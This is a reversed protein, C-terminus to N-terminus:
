LSNRHRSTGDSKGTRLFRWLGLTECPTEAEAFAAGEVDGVRVNVLPFMSPSPSLFGTTAISPVIALSIGSNLSVPSPTLALSPLWDISDSFLHDIMATRDVVSPPLQTVAESMLANANNSLPITTEGAAIPRTVALELSNDIAVLLMDSSQVIPDSNRADLVAIGSDAVVAFGTDGVSIQAAHSQAPTTPDDLGSIDSNILPVIQKADALTITGQGLVDMRYNYGADGASLNIFPVIQKADALTVTQQNLQDGPLVYMMFNFDSGQAGDGSGAASSSITNQWYGDLTAGDIDTVSSADIHLLVRDAPLLPTSFTWTAVHTTNNYSFGSVSPLTPAGPTSSGILQLSSQTVSVDESFLINVTNLKLWPLTDLQHAGNSINYGLGTVTNNGYGSTDLYDYYSSDWAGAGSVYVGMVTPPAHIDVTLPTEVFEGSSDTARVTLTAAGTHQSAYNLTLVGTNPDITLSSFLAANTDGTITYLLGNSQDSDDSFSATLNVNSSAAGEITKVASLGSTTPTANSAHLVWLEAGHTNDTARFFVTGNANVLSTVTADYGDPMITGVLATSGSWGGSTWLQIGNVGDDAAFFLTSGVAILSTPSSGISGPDIDAVLGTGAATGDTRWLENGGLSTTATFYLAGNAVTLNAPSTTGGLYDTNPVMVTGGSTGDSMWLKIGHVGDNAAFFLEGNFNILSTPSASSSGAYLDKVLVTGAATGNSKWLEVGDTGDNATFFLEGNVNTLNAPSSDSSGPNIDKVMFTGASTGNSTWLEVGNVGDTATFFLQGNVNTLNAPSSNSSGANIDKVMFTGGSTGDSVWLEVGNIGDTATFHLLGGIAVFNAPSSSSTGVDIDKVLVTGASTGDSKWLEIGHSSGDTASFYLTGNVNTLNAPSSSSSGSVIDKVMVTGATTGDSKWLEIGNTGNTAQFYVTSGIAVMDAPTSGITSANIDKILTTGGSTGDSTWLETGTAATAAFVIKTGLVALSTPSSSSTGANIDLVLSTTTGDTKWLEVGHTGDNASFYLAGNAVKFNAPSSASTGSRIDDFLVTGASTGDTRWLEVGHTGDTAAFYINGNFVTLNAPSSNASGSDIDKLMSTGAATGDSKWLEIGNTGDTASFILTTGLATLNAPSSNSSGANIDKVLATGGSTGDSKWLEIGDTGDNATFYLTSGVVTLNAPSSGTAGVNIDKVLTTGASTGTSKWLEAGNTGDNASFYLTSGMVVFNSPSASGSGSNIDKVLSTGAATGTSKWLEVGDSGDNATFYLTSGIATFNSPSSNSSGDNIDDVLVTGSTTGDSKWLETGDTGDNASFFLTGNVNTLNAISSSSIGPNVDKVLVTGAATGDTKWLEAGHEPDTAVFFVSSGITLTNTPSSSAAQTDIDLPMSPTSPTPRVQILITQNAQKAGDNGLLGIDNVNIQLQATGVFGSGPAFQMAELAANLSALTGTATITSTGNGTLGTLGATTGLSLTGHSVTLSLQENGVVYDSDAITIGNTLSSTFTLATNALTVQTPPVSLTPASNVPDVVTAVFSTTISAGRPDTATISLQSSGLQSAAYNLTLTGNGNDISLSSFLSPNTNGTITFTLSSSPYLSDSFASALQVVTSGSNEIAGQDSIGTTTLPHDYVTFSGSQSVIGAGSVTLQYTGPALGAPLTFNVTEPTAGTQVGTSSWNSTRAYYVHGSQDALQVIPYNSSMEADDGYSAGESMGNLQTGTLTYVGGGTYAINSVVPQWSPDASGAPTYVYLQNTSTALLLQGTPLVLMRTVYCVVNLNVGTTDLTTITNTGPDYDFLTTPSAWTPTSGAAFIVHGNPLIAGPADNAGLGNPIVPGATWTGTGGPTTSPTYLATNSDAGIFFARGDPLLLGPGLEAISNRLTVPVTGSDIWAGTTPDWRQAEDTSTGFVDYSLISGDALKTWTEEDSQDNYLKTPGDKWSNTAPDYIYTQPGSLYGALITGDPLVEIPDDGFKTRPFDPVFTWTNALPDYIEATNNDDTTSSYEGGIVFVRGDPLVASGTYLRAINSSALTSWTGNVYSGISDPTLKYWIDSTGSHQALVTGDSLLMMTGIGAPAKNTLLTWTGPAASPQADSPSAIGDGADSAPSENLQVGVSAALGSEITSSVSADDIPSGSLLLRPELAEIRLKRAFESGRRLARGRRSRDESRRRHSM